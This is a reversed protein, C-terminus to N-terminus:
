KFKPNNKNKLLYEEKLEELRIIRLTDLDLLEPDQLIKLLIHAPNLGLSICIIIFKELSISSLGNELESIYGCACEAINAVDIQTLKWSLRIQRLYKGIVKALKVKYNVM